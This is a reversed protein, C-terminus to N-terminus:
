VAFFDDDFIFFTNSQLKYYLLLNIVKNNVSVIYKYYKHCRRRSETERAM